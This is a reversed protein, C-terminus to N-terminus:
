EVCGLIILGAIPGVFIKGIFLSLDIANWLNVLTLEIPTMEAGRHHTPPIKEMRRARRIRFGSRRCDPDHYDEFYNRSGSHQCPPFQPLRLADIVKQKDLTKQTM